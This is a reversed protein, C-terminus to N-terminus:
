KTKLTVNYGITFWSIRKNEKKCHPCIFSDYVFSHMTQVEDIENKCHNCTENKSKYKM